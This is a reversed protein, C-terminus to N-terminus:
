AGEERLIAELIDLGEKVAKLPINLPPMIRIVKDSTCNIILGKELASRVIGAGPKTLEIGIHLGLGRIERVCGLSPMAKKLRSVIYDGTKAAGAQLKGKKLEKLVVLAAACALHNGGFTTGHSGKELLQAINERAQIAGLPFGGGLGKAMTIIDPEIGFHQYGFVRGTRGLGTQVEDIILLLGNKKCIAAVGKIFDRGIIKIGGEGQILETMVACLNKNRAVEAEFAKLDNFPLHTFGPVLPDFGKRIKEQGTASMAGFTRGHFCGEFTIIGYKDPSQSKGYRRALKIAAESAEAGSNVFLTRGPFSIESTLRAAEAQERNYYLNSTHMVRRMQGELARILGPHNYGLLNVAIGALFDVYKRNDQDYLYAGEGKIFCVPQRDGYNQFLCSKDEDIIKKLKQSIM